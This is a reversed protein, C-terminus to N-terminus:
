ICHSATYQCVEIMSVGSGINVLLYPFINGDNHEDTSTEDIPTASEHINEEEKMEELNMNKDGSDGYSMLAGLAGLYGEHQLFVAQMKSQSWFDIAYSINQMTSKHGRIYSGGFFVRRLHLISAVLFSIQIVFVMIIKGCGTVSFM